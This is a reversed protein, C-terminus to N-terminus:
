SQYSEYLVPNVERLFLLLKSNVAGNERAADFVTRSLENRQDRQSAHPLLNECCKLLYAYTDPTPPLGADVMRNYADFAVRLAEPKDEELQTCACTSILATFVFRNPRVAENYIHDLLYNRSDDAGFSEFGPNVQAEMKDLLLMARSAAGPYSKAASVGWCAIANQYCLADPRPVEAFSLGDKGGKKSLKSIVARVEMRSLLEEAREGADQAGSKSWLRLVYNFSFKSPQSSEYRAMDGLLKTGYRAWEHWEQSNPSFPTTGRKVFSHGKNTSDEGSHVMSRLVANYSDRNPLSKFDDESWERGVSNRRKNSNVESSEMESRSQEMSALLRRARMLYRKTGGEEAYVGLLLHKTYLDPEVRFPVKEAENKKLPSDGVIRLFDNEGVMRKVVADVRDCLNPIVGHGGKALTDLLLNYTVVNPYIGAESMEDLLKEAKNAAGRAERKKPSTMVGRYAEFVLHYAHLLKPRRNAEEDTDNGNRGLAELDRLMRHAKTAANLLGARSYVKMVILYLEANPEVYPNGEGSRRSMETILDGLRIGMDLQAIKRAWVNGTSGGSVADDKEGDDEGLAAGDEHSAARQWHITSKMLQRYLHREASYEPSNHASLGEIAVSNSSGVDFATSPEDEADGRGGFGFMRGISGFFTGPGGSQGSSQREAQERRHRELAGGVAEERQRRLDELRSLFREAREAPTAPQEGPRFSSRVLIRNDDDDGSSAHNDDGAEATTPRISRDALQYGHSYSRVAAWGSVLRRLLTAAERYAAETSQLAAVTPAPALSEDASNTGQGTPVGPTNSDVSSGGVRRRREADEQRKRQIADLDAFSGSGSDGGGLLGAEYRDLVATLDDEMRLLEDVDRMGRDFRRSSARGGRNGGGYEENAASSSSHKDMTNNKDNGRGTGGGRGSGRSSARPRGGQRRNSGGKGKGKGSGHKDYAHFSYGGGSSSIGGSGGGGSGRGGGGSRRGGARGARGHHNGRHRANGGGQGGGGEDDDSDYPRYAPPVNVPPGRLWRVQRDFPRGGPHASPADCSPLRASVAPCTARHHHHLLLPRQRSARSARERPCATYTDTDTYDTGNAASTSGTSTASTTTASSSLAAYRYTGHRSSATTTTTRCTATAPGNIVSRARLFM